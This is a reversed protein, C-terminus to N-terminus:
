KNVIIRISSSYNNIDIKCFYAGSAAKETNWTFNQIGQELNGQFVQTILNSQADYINIDVYEPSSLNFQINAIGNAPNPFIVPNNIKVPNVHVSTPNWKANLLYIGATSGAAIFQSNSSISLASPLDGNTKGFYSSFYNLLYSKTKKNNKINNIFLRAVDSDHTYQSTIIYNNDPSFACTRSNLGFSRYVSWDNTNWITDGTGFHANDFAAALYQNSSFCVQWIPSLGNGSLTKVFKLDPITYIDIEAHPTYNENWFPVAAIYQNDPSVDISTIRRPLNVSKIESFDKTDFITLGNETPDTGVVSVLYKGNDTFKSIEGKVTALLSDTDFDYVKTKSASGILIMNGSFDISKIENSEKPYSKVLNGTEADWINAVGDTGGSALYKGDHSFKVVRIENPYTFKCWLTDPEDAQAKTLSPFAM